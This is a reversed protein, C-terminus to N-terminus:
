LSKKEKKKKAAATCIGRQDSVSQSLLSLFAAGSSSNIGKWMAMPCYAFASRQNRQSRFSSVWAQFVASSSLLTTVATGLLERLVVLMRNHPVLSMVTLGTRISVQMDGPIQWESSNWLDCVCVPTHLSCCLLATGPSPWHGCWQRGGLFAELLGPIAAQEWPSGAGLKHRGPTVGGGRSPLLTVGKVM